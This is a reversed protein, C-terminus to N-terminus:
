GDSDPAPQNAVANGPWGPKKVCDGCICTIRTEPPTALGLERFAKLYRAQVAEDIGFTPLGCTAYAHVVAGRPIRRLVAEFVEPDRTDVVTRSGEIVLIFRPQSKGTGGGENLLMVGFGDGAMFRVETGGTRYLVLPEDEARDKAKGVPGPDTEPVAPEIAEIRVSGKTQRLGQGLGALDAKTVGMTFTCQSPKLEFLGAEDWAQTSENYIKGALRVKLGDVELIRVGKGGAEWTFPAMNYLRDPNAGVITLNRISAKATDGEGGWGFQIAAGNRHQRITVNEIEIDHYIKIGDDLTDILSNRISSGASGVFGDSNNNDGGRTDLLSCGDVHIVSRNAYGSIHYSRPDKSTLGSVFVTADALVSISGYKWKDNEAIKQEGTWRREPTGYIVSSGRDEGEIRLPNNAERYGVRIGGTVTVGKGIVVRKVHSPVSWYFGEKTQPFQGSTAFRLTGSPADWAKKGTYEVDPEAASVGAAWIGSLFVCWMGAKTRVRRLRRRWAGAFGDASGTSKRKNM